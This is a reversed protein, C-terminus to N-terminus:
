RLLLAAAVKRGENMLVNFTRCAAPTDMAELGKGAAMLAQLLSPHPFRLQKGTGLLIIEADLGALLEFDATRLTEFSALTWDPILRHPLVVLSGVYRVANVSVFDDGYATFLNGGEPRTSQLKM